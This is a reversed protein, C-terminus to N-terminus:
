LIRVKRVRAPAPPIASEPHAGEASEVPIEEVVEATVPELPRPILSTVVAAMETLQQAMTQTLYSQNAEQNQRILSLEERFTQMTQLVESQAAIVPALLDLWQNDEEIEEAEIEASTEPEIATEEIVPAPTEVTVTVEQTETEM